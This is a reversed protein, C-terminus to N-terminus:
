ALETNSKDYEKFSHELEFLRNLLEAMASDSQRRARVEAIEQIIDRTRGM